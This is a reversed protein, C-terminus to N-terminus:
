KYAIIAYDQSGFIIDSLLNIGDNFQALNNVSSSDLLPLRYNVKSQETYMIQVNGFGQQQLVYQLTKPHVPKEHSPDLYFSNMYTSLCTPNPTEIIFCSGPTLIRHAQNCLESLDEFSIHEVLQGAFIGGYSEDALAQLCQPVYGENVNLGKLSCYEVFESYGDIGLAPIGHEKLLELFEGRGCGLDLIQGKSTFYQIYQEQAEKIRKRSGRFHNEFDFYDLTKYTDPSTTKNKSLSLPSEELHMHSDDCNSTTCKIKRMFQIETNTLAKDFEDSSKELNFQLKKIQEQITEAAKQRCLLSDYKAQLDAYKTKFDNCFNKTEECQRQLTTHQHQFDETQNEIHERLVVMQEVLDRNQSSSSQLQTDFEVTQSQLLLMQERLKESHVQLCQQQESLEGTEAQIQFILKELNLIQNSALSTSNQLEASDIKNSNIQEYIDCVQKKLEDLTTSVAHNELYKQNKFSNELENLRKDTDRNLEIQYNTFAETVTENNYLANISATVSGNFESSDLCIPEILSRCLKRMVRKLFHLLKNFKRTHTDIPRYYDIQYCNNNKEKWRRLEDMDYWFQSNVPIIKDEMSSVTVENNHSDSLLIRVVESTTLPTNKGESIDASPGSELENLISSLREGTKSM